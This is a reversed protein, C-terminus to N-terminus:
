VGENKFSPVFDTTNSGESQIFGNTVGISLAYDVISDYHKPNLKSNIKPYKYANYMPTYQNMLSIYIDDGFTNHLLDLVKKSDFLLGPILLHRVIVGKTIINDENFIPKGVQRIMEKIVNLANESYNNIKSYM